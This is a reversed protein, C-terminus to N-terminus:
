FTLNNIQEEIRMLSAASNKRRYLLTKLKKDMAEWDAYFKGKLSKELKEAYEKYVLTEKKIAADHSGGKNFIDLQTLRKNSKIMQDRNYTVMSFNVSFTKIELETM